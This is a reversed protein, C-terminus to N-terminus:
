MQPSNMMVTTKICSGSLMTTLLGTHAKKSRASYALSEKRTATKCNLILAKSQNWWLSREVLEHDVSPRVDSTIDYSSASPTYLTIQLLGWRVLKATKSSTFLARDTVLLYLKTAFDQAVDKLNNGPKLTQGPIVWQLTRELGGVGLHMCYSSPYLTHSENGINENCGLCNTLRLNFDGEGKERGGEV